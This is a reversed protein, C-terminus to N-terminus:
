RKKLTEFAHRWLAVTAVFETPAAAPHISWRVPDYPAPGGRLSPGRDLDVDIRDFPASLADGTAKSMAEKCTWLTLVRRRASEANLLALAARESVSLFKRAIGSVNITRDLREVDVGIRAGRVIGVIAVDATHSVNFDLDAPPALQPRGRVGRVIEVSSPTIGLEAALIERLAGRGMVYRERLLANGFRAARDREAGSLAHERSELAARSPRLSCWWVHVGTVPPSLREIRAPLEANGTSANEELSLDVGM